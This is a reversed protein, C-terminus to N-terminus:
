RITDGSRGTGSTENAEHPFSSSTWASRRPVLLSERDKKFRKDDIVDPFNRVTDKDNMSGRSSSTESGSSPYSESSQSSLVSVHPENSVTNPRRASCTDLTPPFNVKSSLTLMWPEPESGTL